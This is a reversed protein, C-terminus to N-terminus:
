LRLRECDRPRIPVCAAIAPWTHKKKSPCVTHEPDWWLPWFAPEHRLGWVRKLGSIHLEYLETTDDLEL